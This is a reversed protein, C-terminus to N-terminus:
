KEMEQILSENTEWQLGIACGRVLFLLARRVDLKTFLPVILTPVVYLLFDLFDVARAGDIKKVLNDWSGQFSVPIKGRSAEICNGVDELQKKSLKFTYNSMNFSGDSSKGFVTTNESPAQNVKVILLRIFKAIGQGFLHLEDLGYFSSSAFSPLKCFINPKM